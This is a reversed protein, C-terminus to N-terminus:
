VWRNGANAKAKVDREIIRLRQKIGQIESMIMELADSLPVMQESLRFGQADTTVIKVKQEDPM